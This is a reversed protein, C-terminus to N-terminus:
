PTPLAVSGGFGGPSFGDKGRESEPAGPIRQSTAADSCYRGRDECPHRGETDTDKCPM